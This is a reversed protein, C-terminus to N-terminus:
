LLLNAINAKFIIEIIQNSTTKLAIEEGCIKGRDNEFDLKMKGKKMSQRTRTKNQQSRM